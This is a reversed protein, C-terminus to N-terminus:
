ILDAIDPNPGTIAVPAGQAAEPSDPHALLWKNSAWLYKDQENEIKIDPKDYNTGKPLVIVVRFGEGKAASCPAYHLTTAYLEVGTGKPCRFAKTVSSDISGNVIEQEKALLLVIDDAAIDIESDRHYEFCNLKTNTGNCYGIQVPMGGYVNDSLVKYVPLAELDKDGPVYVTGDAPKPSVKELKELLETFDYGDVVRGYEKFEDDFVSLIKM